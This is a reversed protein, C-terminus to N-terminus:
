PQYVRVYDVVMETPFKSNDVNFGPWNGGVAVNLLFFFKKHFAGTSGTSDKILMEYYYNGDVGVKIYDKDWLLHYTHFQTVDLNMNKGYDAHGGNALWHCTAYIKNEANIAELIDIEGCAPWNEQDINAGLMWFAPWIGNFAPLKISAEVYGYQFEFKGKTKMRASTYEKGEYSEKIAKIHLQGNAVYSNQGRNTYCELENNGWGGGGLDYVWKSGDISNGEFEDSWVLKYGGPPATYITIFLALFLFAKM